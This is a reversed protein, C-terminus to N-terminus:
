LGDAMATTAWDAATTQNMRAQEDQVVPWETTTSHGQTNMMTEYLKNSSTHMDDRATKRVHRCHMDSGMDYGLHATLAPNAGYKESRRISGEYRQNQIAFTATRRAQKEDERRKAKYYTRQCREKHHSAREGRAKARDRKLQRDMDQHRKVWRTGREYFDLKSGKNRGDKTINYPTDEGFAKMHKWVTSEACPSNWFYWLKPKEPHHVLPEVACKPLMKSAASPRQANKGVAGDMIDGYVVNNLPETRALEECFESYDLKGEGQGDFVAFVREVQTETMPINLNYLTKRFQQRDVLGSREEDMDYFAESITPHRSRLTEEVAGLNGATTYKQDLAPVRYITAAKQGDSRPVKWRPDIDGTSFSKAVQVRELHGQHITARLSPVTERAGSDLSGTTANLPATNLMVDDPDEEEDSIFEERDDVADSDMVGKFHPTPPVNNQKSKDQAMFWEQFEDFDVDGSGDADLEAMVEDLVKKGTSDFGMQILVQHVEERDLTGSQDADVREWVKRLLNATREDEAEEDEDPVDGVDYMSVNGLKTCFEEYEITGDGDRDLIKMVEKFELDSVRFGLMELGKRFEDYSLDGSRDEDFDRFTKRVNIRSLVKEALDIVVNKAVRKADRPAEKKIDQKPCKTIHQFGNRFPAIGPAKGTRYAPLHIQDYKFRYEGSVDKPMKRPRITQTSDGMPHRYVPLTPRPGRNGRRKTKKKPEVPPASVCREAEVAKATEGRAATPSAKPVAAKEKPTGRAEHKKLDPQAYTTRGRESTPVALPKNLDVDITKQGAPHASTTAMLPGSLEKLGVESAAFRLGETIGPPPSQRGPLLSTVREPSARNIARTNLAVKGTSNLIQACAAGRSNVANAFATQQIPNLRVETPNTATRRNSVGVSARGVRNRTGIDKVPSPSRTAPKYAAKTTANLQKHAFGGGPNRLARLPSGAGAKRLPVPSTPASFAPSAAM